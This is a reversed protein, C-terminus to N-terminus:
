LRSMGGDVVLEEGLVFSSDPSALFAVVRAIEEPSGFRGLPIQGMIGKATEQVQDEPLGLRGYLPTSVPGPSVANVRIGRSVLEASLTRALSALAAKSAAYVSTNPMGIVANISTNLVIAGGEGMLPLAKQITAYAGKFNVAFSEDIASETVAEFPAMRAVGANVFLADVRGFREGIEGFFRDLDRSSSVDGKVALAGGGLRAAAEELTRENRGLIAVSAGEARFEEAAALGIGSNGGTVVAVKGDFRGV